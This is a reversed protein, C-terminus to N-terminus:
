APTVTNSTKTVTGSSNTAQVETTITTGAPLDVDPTTASVVQGDTPNSPFPFSM